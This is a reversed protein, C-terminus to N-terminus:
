MYAVPQWCVASKLPASKPFLGVRVLVFASELICRQEAVFAVRQSSRMAPRDSERPDARQVVLFLGLRVRAPLSCVTLPDENLYRLLGGQELGLTNVLSELQVFRM